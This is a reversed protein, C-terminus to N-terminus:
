TRNRDLVHIVMNDERTWSEGCACFLRYLNTDRPSAADPTLTQGIRKVHVLQHVLKDQM